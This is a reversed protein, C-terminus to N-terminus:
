NVVFRAVFRGDQKMQGMLVTSKEMVELTKGGGQNEVADHRFVSLDSL